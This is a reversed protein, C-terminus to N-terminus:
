VGRFCGGRHYRMGIMKGPASEPLARRGREFGRMQTSALSWCKMCAPRQVSCGAGQRIEAEREAQIAWMSIPLVPM